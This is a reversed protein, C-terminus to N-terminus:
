SLMTKTQVPSVCSIPARNTYTMFSISALLKKDWQCTMSAMCPNATSVRPREFVFVGRQINLSTSHCRLTM